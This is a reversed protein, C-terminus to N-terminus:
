RVLRFITYEFFIIAEIFKKYCVRASTLDFFKACSQSLEFSRSFTQQVRTCRTDKILDRRGRQTKLSSEETFARWLDLRNPALLAGIIFRCHQDVVAGSWKSSSVSAVPFILSFPKPYHANEEDLFCCGSQNLKWQFVNEWLVERLSVKIEVLFANFIKRKGKFSGCKVCKRNPHKLIKEDFKKAKSSRIM